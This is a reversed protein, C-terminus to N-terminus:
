NLGKLYEEPGYTGGYTTKYGKSDLYDAIMKNQQRTAISGLRGGLKQSLLTIAIGSYPSNSLTYNNGIQGLKSTNVNSINVSNMIKNTQYNNIITSAKNYVAEGLKYGGYITLGTQVVSKSYDKIENYNDTTLYNVFNDVNFTTKFNDIVGNVINGPLSVLTQGTKTFTKMYEDNFYNYTDESTLGLQHVYYNGAVGISSGIFEGTNWAVTGVGVVADFALEGAGHFAGVIRTGVYKTGEWIEEFFYGNPDIYIMPNNNVYVYRNLSLPDNLEGRYTDESIFRAIIPNYYRSLLYYNDTETDYYYGAYKYPNDLIESENIINGFVDYLYTNLVENLDDVM